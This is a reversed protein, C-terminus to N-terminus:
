FIHRTVPHALFDILIFYIECALDIVELIQIAATNVQFIAVFASLSEDKLKLFSFHDLIKLPKM